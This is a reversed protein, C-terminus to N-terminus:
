LAPAKAAISEFAKMVSKVSVLLSWRQKGVLYKPGLIPTVVIGRSWGPRWRYYDDCRGIITVTPLGLCSALHGIGSDNGIMAGSEYVYCALDKVAPFEPLLFQEKIHAEWVPREQPSVTFAPEWGKNQLRKALQIFKKASWDKAPNASTPHLIVRKPYKHAILHAPATIGNEKEVDRLGIVTECLSLVNDAMPLQRNLAPVVMGSCKAVAQLRAVRDPDEHSQAIVDRHDGKLGLSMRNMRMFIYRQALQPFQKEDVDQTLPCHADALVLDYAALDSELSSTHPMKKLQFHPFWDNLSAAIGSYLTVKFGNRQLNHALVAYLLADGLGKASLIAITEGKGRPIQQM